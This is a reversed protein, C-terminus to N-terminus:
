GHWCPHPAWVVAEGVVVKGSRWLPKVGLAGGIVPTGHLGPGCATPCQTRLTPTCATSTPIRSRRGPVQPRGALRARHLRHITRTVGILLDLPKGHDAKRAQLDLARTLCTSPLRRLVAHVAPKGLKLSPPLRGSGSRPWRAQGSTVAAPWRPAWPGPRRPVPHAPGPQARLHLGGGAGSPRSVLRYVFRPVRRPGLAVLRRLERAEAVEGLQRRTGRRRRRM